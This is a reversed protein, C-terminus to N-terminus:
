FRLKVVMSGFLSARGVSPESTVAGLSGSM